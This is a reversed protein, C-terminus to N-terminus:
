SVRIEKVKGASTERLPSQKAQSPQEYQFRVILSMNCYGKVFYWICIDSEHRGLFESQDGFVVRFPDFIFLEPSKRQFAEALLYPHVLLGKVEALDYYRFPSDKGTIFSLFRLKRHTLDDKNVTKSAFKLQFLLILM